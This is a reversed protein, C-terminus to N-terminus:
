RNDEIGSDHCDNVSKSYDSSGINGTSKIAAYIIGAFVIVVIVATWIDSHTLNFEM